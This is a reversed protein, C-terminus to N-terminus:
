SSAPDISGGAAAEHPISWGFYVEVEVIRGARVTLIETNRFRKGGAWQGEYTAFVQEGDAAMHIFDFGALKESNPWCREFYTKRDIRNDLPSSFHFDDAILREIAARDKEVYARYSARAIETPNDTM